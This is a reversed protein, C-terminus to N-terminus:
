LTIASGEASLVSVTRTEVSLLRTMVSVRVSSGRSQFGCQLHFQVPQISASVDENFVSKNRGALEREAKGFGRLENWFTTLTDTGSVLPCNLLQGILDDVLHFQSPLQGIGPLLTWFSDFRWIGNRFDTYLWRATLDGLLWVSFSHDIRM